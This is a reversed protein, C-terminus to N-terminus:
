LNAFMEISDPLGGSAIIVSGNLIYPIIPRLSYETSPVQTMDIFDTCVSLLELDQVFNTPRYDIQIKPSQENIIKQVILLLEHIKEEYPSPNLPLTATVIYVIKSISKLRDKFYITNWVLGALFMEFRSTETFSLPNVVVM